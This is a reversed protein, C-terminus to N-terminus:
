GNKPYTIHAPLRLTGNFDVFKIIELARPGTRLVRRGGKIIELSGVDSEFRAPENWGSFTEFRPFSQESFQILWQFVIAVFGEYLRGTLFKKQSKSLSPKVGILSINTRPSEVYIYQTRELTTLL